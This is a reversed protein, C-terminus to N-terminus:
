EPKNEESKEEALEAGYKFVLSFLLMVIGTTINGNQDFKLLTDDAGYNKFVACIIALIASFGVSVAIYVIGLRFLERAGEYTFPTGAELENSFYRGAMYTLVAGVICVACSATCALYMTPLSMQVEADNLVKKLADGMGALVGIGIICGVAGIICFVFAIKTLIRAIKNITQIVKLTKTM